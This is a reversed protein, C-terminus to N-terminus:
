TGRRQWHRYAGLGLTLVLITILCGLFDVSAMALILGPLQALPESGSLWLAAARLISTGAAVGLAILPLHLASLNSLNKDIGLSRSTAVLAVYPGFGLILSLLIAAEPPAEAMALLSCSL